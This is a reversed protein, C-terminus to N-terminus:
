KNKKAQYKDRSSFFARHVVSEKDMIDPLDKFYKWGDNIETINLYGNGNYDFKRFLDRRLKIDEKSKTLPFNAM